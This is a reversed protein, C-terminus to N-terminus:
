RGTRGRRSNARRIERASEEAFIEIVLVDDLTFSDIDTPRVGLQTWLVAWMPLLRHRM